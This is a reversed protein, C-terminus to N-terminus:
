RLAERDRADAEWMRRAIPLDWVSRASTAHARARASAMAEWKGALRLDEATAAGSRIRRFAARRERKGEIATAEHAM